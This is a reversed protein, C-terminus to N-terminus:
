EVYSRISGVTEELRKAIDRTDPGKADADVEQPKEFWVHHYPDPKERIVFTYFLGALIALFFFVIDDKQTHHRLSQFALFASSEISTSM